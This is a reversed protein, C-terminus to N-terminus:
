ARLKKRLCVNGRKCDRHAASSKSHFAWDPVAAAACALSTMIKTATEPLAAVVIGAWYMWWVHRHRRRQDVCLSECRFTPATRRKFCLSLRLGTRAVCDEIVVTASRLSSTQAARAVLAVRSHCVGNHAGIQARGM